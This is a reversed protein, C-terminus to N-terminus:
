PCHSQNIHGGPSMRGSYPPCVVTHKLSLLADAIDQPTKEKLVSYDRFNFSFLSHKM